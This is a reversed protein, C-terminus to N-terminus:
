GVRAQVRQSKPEEKREEYKAAVRQIRVKKRKIGAQKMIKLM